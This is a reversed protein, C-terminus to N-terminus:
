IQVLWAPSVVRLGSASSHRPLLPLPLGRGPQWWDQSVHLSSSRGFAHGGRLREPQEWWTVSPSVPALLPGHELGSLLSSPWPQIHPRWTRTQRVTSGGGQPGCM